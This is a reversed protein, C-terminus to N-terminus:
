GISKYNQYNTVSATEQLLQISAKRFTGTRIVLQPKIWPVIKNNTQEKM